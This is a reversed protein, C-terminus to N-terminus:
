RRLNPAEIQTAKVYGPVGSYVVHGGKKTNPRIRHSAVRKVFASYEAGSAMYGAVCTMRSPLFLLAHSVASCLPVTGPSYKIDNEDEPM